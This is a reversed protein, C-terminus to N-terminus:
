IPFTTKVGVVTSPIRAYIQGSRGGLFKEVQIEEFTRGWFAYTGVHGVVGLALKRAFVIKHPSVYVEAFERGRAEVSETYGGLSSALQRIIKTAVFGM